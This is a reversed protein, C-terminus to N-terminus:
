GQGLLLEVSVKRRSLGLFCEFIHKAGKLAQDVHIRQERMEHICNMVLSKDVWHCFLVGNQAENLEVAM